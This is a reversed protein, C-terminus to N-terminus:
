YILMWYGVKRSGIRIIFGDEKLVKISSEIWRKSKGTAVAIEQATISPNANMLELIMQKTPNLSSVKGDKIGSNIGDKIGSDDSHTGTNVATDGTSVGIKPLPIIIRFVDGEILEPDAGSYPKSYKFLNRVGSGLTDANGINVFFRALIPNKPHPEFNDPELHGPRLSRSWNEGVIRDKEIVIRAPMSSSFERHVLINSVLEKAIKDRISVNRMDEDLYFPDITHKRIFAMCRDFAQLLNCDVRERDDYRDLNQVRLLCDTIYGPSAQQIVDERGFLMIAALNFGEIGTVRDKEYLGASHLIEMDPMDRWPHDPQKTVAMNRVLPMLQDLLLDDATAYPFVKRETFSSSKRISLQAVLDVSGTIDYDGDENRDYIRSGFMQIQSSVPVYTYLILKGEIEAEELSLYMTPAFREPNNLASAFNKRMGAAANRNVGLVTGDDDVGLLLYGGYRNSFASITEFVNNNLENLNKKFEITLGEGENLLKQLHESTM